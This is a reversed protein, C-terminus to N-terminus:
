YGWKLENAREEAIQYREQEKDKLAMLVAHLESEVVVQALNITSIIKSGKCTPCKIDYAGDFYANKFEPDDDFDQDSLGCSDVNPDVVTGEGECMLCISNHIPADMAIAAQNQFQVKTGLKEILALVSSDNFEMSLITLDLFIKHKAKNAGLLFSSGALQAITRPDSFYNQNELSSYM